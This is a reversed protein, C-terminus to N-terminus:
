AGYERVNEFLAEDVYDVLLAFPIMAARAGGRATLKEFIRAYLDARRDEEWDGFFRNLTQYAAEEMDNVNLKTSVITLAIGYANQRYPTM